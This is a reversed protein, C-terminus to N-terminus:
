LGRAMILNDIIKFYMNHKELKVKKGELMWKVRYAKMIKRNHKHWELFAKDVFQQEDIGTITFLKRDYRNHLLDSYAEFFSDPRALDGWFRFLAAFYVNVLPRNIENQLTIRNDNM